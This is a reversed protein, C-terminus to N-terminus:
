FYSYALNQSVEPWCFRFCFVEMPSIEETSWIKVIYIYLCYCPTKKIELTPNKGYSVKILGSLRTIKYSLLPLTVLCLLYLVSHYFLSILRLSQLILLGCYLTWVLVSTDHLMLPHNYAPEKSILDTHYFWAHGYYLYLFWITTMLSTWFFDSVHLILKVSPNKCSSSAFYKAKM